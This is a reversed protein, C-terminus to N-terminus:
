PQPIFFVYSITCTIYFGINSGTVLIFVLHCLCALFSSSNYLRLCVKFSLDLESLGSPPRGCSTNAHDLQKGAESALSNTSSVIQDTNSDSTPVGGVDTSMSVCADDTQTDEATVLWNWVKGDDSISILHTSSIPHCEDYSDFPSVIDAEAEAEAEADADPSPSHSHRVDSCLKAVNQLISDSQCIVVALVSPSPVSTGISPLLEEMASM